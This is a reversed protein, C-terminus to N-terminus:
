RGKWVPKRKEMFARLGEKADETTIVEGLRDCLFDLAQNLEMDQAAALAQRGLRMAMPAKSAMAKLTDGIVRDFEAAAIVRTVLGM